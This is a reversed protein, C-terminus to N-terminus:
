EKLLVDLVKIWNQMALELNSEHLERAEKNAADSVSKIVYAKDLLNFERLVSLFAFAEMEVVDANHKKVIDSVINEDDIFQDWTACISEDFINFDLGEIEIKSCINIDWKAYNLHEGDFPLYMDHQVVKDVLLVDGPLANEKKGSNWAIWINIIKEFEWHELLIMTWMTAQIKWIWSKVLTINEGKYVSIEKLKRIEKLNYKEIILNAEDEMACLIWTM